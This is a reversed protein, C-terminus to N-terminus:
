GFNYHKRVDQKVRWRCKMGKPFVVYDGPGFQFEDGDENIVSVQGEIILCTEKDSYDWAFESAEKEWIPWTEAQSKEEETPKRITPKM